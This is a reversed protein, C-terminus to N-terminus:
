PPPRRVKFEAVFATTELRIQREAGEYGDSALRLPTLVGEHKQGLMRAETFFALSSVAVGVGEPVVLRIDGVFGFFRILTEGPPIEAQTLDLRVDGVVMWIEQNSVQWSGGYRVPGFLTFRLATDPGALRPRLLIGVGILILALPFCFVGIDVDFLAGLLFILGAALILAGILIQGQNRM